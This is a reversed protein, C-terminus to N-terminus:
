TWESGALQSLDILSLYPGLFDTSELTNIEEFHPNGKRFSVEVYFDGLAYLRFTRLGQHRSLLYTGFHWIAFAQGHEDLDTFEYFDM